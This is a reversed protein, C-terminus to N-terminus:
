IAGFGFDLDGVSEKAKQRCDQFPYLPYLEHNDNLFQTLVEAADIGQQNYSQSRADIIEKDTVETGEPTNTLIASGEIRYQVNYVALSLTYYIEPQKIKELLKQNDPTVTNNKVQEYLQDYLPSGLRMRIKSEQVSKAAPQWYKEDLNDSVEAAWDQMDEKTIFLYYAM